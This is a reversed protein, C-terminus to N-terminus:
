PLRIREPPSASLRPSLGEVPRRLSSERSVRRRDPERSVRHSGGKGGGHDRLGQRPQQARSVRPRGICLPRGRFRDGLGNDELAPPPAARGQWAVPGSFTFGAHCKSCALSDSFFLAMGRRAAPSLAEREDKWVLRDYPANGSLLTREFSAIAKQVNQLNIPSRESPFAESFLKSYLPNAGLRTPIEKEHGGFNMERPHEGLLPVLMQDELTRASAEVWTFMASYAANALNMASRPHSEGTSGLAHARGDTFARAQQHCSACAQTGNGSLRVDYFLRRGLAVKGATVPNGEPM